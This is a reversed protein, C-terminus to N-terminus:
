WGRVVAESPAFGLLPNSHRLVRVAEIVPLERERAIKQRLSTGEVYPMM